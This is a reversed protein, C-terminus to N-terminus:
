STAPAPIDVPVSTTNGAKDIAIIMGKIGTRNTMMLGTDGVALRTHLSDDDDRVFYAEDLNDETISINLTLLRSLFASQQVSWTVVPATTDLEPAPNGDVPVPDPVGTLPIRVLTSEKSTWVLVFDGTTLPVAINSRDFELRVLVDTSANVKANFGFVVQKQYGHEQDELRSSTSVLQLQCPALSSLPNSLWGVVTESRDWLSSLSPSLRLSITDPSAVPADVARPSTPNGTLAGNQGTRFHVLVTVHNDGSTQLTVSVPSVQTVNSIEYYNSVLTTSAADDRLSLRVNCPDLPNKVMAGPLITLEHTIGGALTVPATTTLTHGSWKTSDGVPTGDILVDSATFSVLRTRTIVDDFTVSIGEGPKVDRDLLFSIHYEGYDGVYGSTLSVRVYPAAADALVAGGFLSAIVAFVVLIRTITRHM